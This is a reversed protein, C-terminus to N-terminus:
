ENQKDFVKIKFNKLSNEDMRRFAETKKVEKLNEFAFQFCYDELENIKERFSDCYFNCVNELTINNKIIDLCKEKLDEEKYNNALIMLDIVKETEIDIYDTYLYKLFAYYVDYSYHKVELEGELEASIKETRSCIRLKSDFYNSNMKLVFKNVYILKDEIRFKFDSYKPNNFSQTINDLLRNNTKNNRYVKDELGEKEEYEKEKGEFIEESYIEQKFNEELSGESQIEKTEEGIQEELEESEEESKEFEEIKEDEGLDLEQDEEDTEVVKGNEENEEELKEDTLIEEMNVSEKCNFIWDKSQLESNKLRHSTEKETFNLTKITIELYHIFIENFPQIETDKPNQINEEGFEGWVFYKANESLAALINYDNHAEIDIFKDHFRSFIHLVEKECGFDEIFYIVGNNSLLLSHELSCSIKKMLINEVSKLPSPKFSEENLELRGFESSGWGFALDKETLGMSHWGGCSITKFKIDNNVKFPTLQCRNNTGNGIQGCSNLGWAYVNGYNTLVLTHAKGCCIDIIQKNSLIENLEPKYILKDARGNGLLGWENYGWCYVKGDITRAIAHYLSNKFDIIQKGSLDDNITFEKKEYNHGFGLVGFKNIGSAFVKDNNTIVFVNYKNVNEIFFDEYVYLFKIENIFEVKLKNLVKFKRLIKSKESM